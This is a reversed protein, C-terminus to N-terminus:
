KKLLLFLALAGLGLMVLGTTENQRVTSLDGGVAADLISRPPPSRQTITSIVGITSAGIAGIIPAWDSAAM